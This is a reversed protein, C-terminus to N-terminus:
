RVLSFLICTGYKKTVVSFGLNVSMSKRGNCCTWTTAHKNNVMMDFYRVACAGLWAALHGSAVHSLDPHTGLDVALLWKDGYGGYHLCRGTSASAAEQGLSVEGVAARLLIQWHRGLRDLSVEV